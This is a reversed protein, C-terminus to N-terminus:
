KFLEDKGIASPVLGVPSHVAQKWICREDSYCTTNGNQLLMLTNKREQLVVFLHLHLNLKCGNHTWKEFCPVPWIEGSSVSEIHNEYIESLLSMQCLSGNTEVFILAAGWSKFFLVLFLWAHLFLCKDKCVKDVNLLCPYILGLRRHRVMCYSAYIRFRYHM